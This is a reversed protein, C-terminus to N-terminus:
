FYLCIMQKHPRSATKLMELFLSNSKMEDPIKWSKELWCVPLQALNRWCVTTYSHFSCAYSTLKTSLCTLQKVTYLRKHFLVSSLIASDPVHFLDIIYILM